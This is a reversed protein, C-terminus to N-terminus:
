RSSSAHGKLDIRLVATRLAPCLHAEVGAGRRDVYLCDQHQNHVGARLALALLTHRFAVDLEAHFILRKCADDSADPVECRKGPDIEHVDWAPRM